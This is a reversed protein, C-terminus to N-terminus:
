NFNRMRPNRTCRLHLYMKQTQQFSKPTPNAKRGHPYRPGVLELGLVNFREFVSRTREPLDNPNDDLGDFCINLDGAALIRHTSPDQDAIFTSLDSLIRHASGDTYGVRWKSKTTKHPRIWRAYMSLAIFPNVKKDVCIVKAATALGIGSGGFEDIGLESIPFVRKFWEVKVRDTLKVIAPWRDLLEKNWPEHLPYPDISVSEPLKSPFRKVEQLLAVDANMTWLENWVEKRTQGAINWCVLKVM